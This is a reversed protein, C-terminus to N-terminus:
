RSTPDPAEGVFSASLLSPARGLPAAAAAAAAAALPLLSPLAGM